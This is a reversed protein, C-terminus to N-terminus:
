AMDARRRLADSVQELKAARSAKVLVVDGRRVFHNVAGAAVEGAPLEIVRFLGAARAASGMVGAMRGVAFLQDVAREAAFRGVEAHAAPGEEGLEAMDGLVAVRRGECPFDRLTELAARVSDTNANYADDLVWVGAASWVELRRRAARCEPLGRRIEEPTLGLEAATAVALLANTVQHRGVLNVRYSGRYEERDTALEFDTGAADLTVREVRWANDQGWGVRLTRAATRRIVGDMGPSDGHVILCGDAPLLEALEGEERAVGDLDGFFELHERGLSTIVGLRPDVMRVLPALEGPHNTGVELVAVEHSREVNLLTLPVGIDNNFSAESCLTRFRQRLVSGLLDKTTTKGNSGGVAIVPLQFDRRYRAALRGLARRTDDVAVVGADLDSGPRRAQEVLVAGAGKRVVDRVYDHGDFREGRLAVFLDGPKVRRSDTCVRTVALKAPGRCLEGGAAEAVYQLSRPEM